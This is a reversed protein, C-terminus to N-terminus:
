LIEVIAHLGLDITVDKVAYGQQAMIARYGARANADDTFWDSYNGSLKGDRTKVRGHYRHLYRHLHGARGECPKGDM